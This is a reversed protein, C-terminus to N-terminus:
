VDLDIGMDKEEEEPEKKPPPAYALVPDDVPLQHKEQLGRLWAGDLPASTDVDLAAILGKAAQRVRSIREELAERQGAVSADEEYHSLRLAAARVAEKLTDATPLHRLFAVHLASALSYKHDRTWAKTVAKGSFIVRVQGSAASIPILEVYMSADGDVQGIVKSAASAIKGSAAACADRLVQAVADVFDPYQGLQILPQSVVQKHLEKEAAPTRAATGFLAKAFSGNFHQWFRDALAGTARPIEEGEEAEEAEEEEVGDRLTPKEKPAFVCVPAALLQAIEDAFFTSAQSVAADVKEQLQSQLQSLLRNLESAHQVTEDLQDLSECVEKVFSQLVKQRFREALDDLGDELTRGVEEDALKDKADPAVAGLLARKSKLELEYELLRMLTQELWESRSYHYYESTLKAALAGTGALGKDYLERMFPAANPGGFFLKEDHEQRKLRETAHATYYNVKTGNERVVPCKPMALMTATWGKKLKVEGLSAASVVSGDDEDEFDQGTVFAVLDDPRRVEDAKTFVGIARELLGQSQIYKLAGNTNPREGAPVVVLYFSTMGADRDAEIQTSIVKEVAERKAEANVNVTVIGPLDILDIVPVEPHLVDLVIIRDSVVGGTSGALSRELEDMKDQVFHFGSATAITCPPDEPVADRGHKRYNTASIVSMTVETREGRTVDPRRLRVHIPLRTCFTKRRPFLPMRILQELVTSKGSSEDGIVVVKPPTLNVLSKLESRLPDLVQFMKTLDSTMDAMANPQQAPPPVASKPQTLPLTRPERLLTQLGSADWEVKEAEVEVPFPAGGSETFDRLVRDLAAKREANPQLEKSITKFVQMTLGDENVFAERVMPSTDNSEFWREIALREYTCGDEAIVPDFMIEHSLPCLLDSAEPFFDRLVDVWRRGTWPSNSHVVM